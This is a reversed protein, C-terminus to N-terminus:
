LNTLVHGGGALDAVLDGLFVAAVRGGGHGLKLVILLAAINAVLHAVGHGPLLALVDLLVHGLLGQLLPALGLVHLLAAGGAGWGLGARDDGDLWRSSPGPPSCEQHDQGPVADFLNTKTKM